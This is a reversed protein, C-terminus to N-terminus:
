RIGRVQATGFRELRQATSAREEATAAKGLLKVWHAALQPFARDPLTALTQISVRPRDRRLEALMASRGEEPALKYLRRLAIDRTADSGEAPSEYVSRLLPLFVPDVFTRWTGTLRSRQAEATLGLFAAATERSFVRAAATIGGGVFYDRGSPFSSLERRIETELLGPITNLANSRKIALERVARLYDNHSPQHGTPDRTFVQLLALGQMFRRGIRREPNALESLLADEVFARDPSSVLGNWIDNRGPLDDDGNEYFRALIATADNTGLARLEAFTQVVASREGKSESLTTTARDLVQAEWSRDRPLIEFELINSTEFDPTIQRSEVFMRYRGAADFRYDDTLTLSTVDPTSTVGSLIGGQLGDTFRSSDIRAHEAVPRDLHVRICRGSDSGYARNMYLEHGPRDYVLELQIREGSHFVQQGDKLRISFGGYKNAAAGRAHQDTFQDGSAVRTSVFVGALTLAAVTRAATTYMHPNSVSPSNIIRRENM